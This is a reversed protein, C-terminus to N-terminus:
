INLFNGHNRLAYDKYANYADVAQTFYGLHTKKNNFTAMARYKKMKEVFFVGKYGSKNNKYLQQNFQQETFNALRLNCIRNDHKVRNIHDITNKPFEGYVYLWALRHAYYNKKNLRIIVYDKKYSGVIEGALKGNLTKCKRIFVGTEPDYTFKLKLEKQTIINITM